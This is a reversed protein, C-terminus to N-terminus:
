RPRGANWAGNGMRCHGIMRGGADGGLSALRSQLNMTSAIDRQPLRLYVTPLVMEFPVNMGALSESHGIFLYGGPVLLHHFRNLLKEQNEKSFYINVNRCFIVHMKQDIGFEGDMLNIRRFEVRSRLRPEIQALGLNRDKSRLLYKQRLLLPVGTLQEERYIARYAKKLVKLSLDSALISFSFDNRQEALESLVMALTYPEEGTSCASSWIRFRENPMLIREALLRPIIDRCLITFHEPERFFDTKNTTIADITHPLELRRGEPSFIYELYKEFSDFGARSMRRRLRSELMIKKAPPMKIGYNGEIFQALMAFQRSSLHDNKM